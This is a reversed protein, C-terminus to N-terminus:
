SDGGCMLGTMTEKDYGFEVPYDPSSLLSKCISFKLAAHNDLENELIQRAKEIQGSHVLGEIFVFYESADAPHLDNEIASNYLSSIEQWQGKQRALSAKQYYYCWQHAPEEGFIAQSPMPQPNTTTIRSIDSFIAVENVYQKENISYIPMNGDLVHLCAEAFPQGILIMQSYDRPMYIDRVTGERMEQDVVYTVTELNLIQAQIPPISVPQSRYILNLPGWIEYDEHFSFTSPLYGMVLTNDQIDPARWSLQWWFNRQSEWYGNWAFGNLIQVIVSFGILVLFGTKRYMAKFASVIGLIILIAGASPHLAYAKYADNLNLYRNSLVVPAVAGLVIISGLLLKVWPKESKQLDENEDSKRRVKLYFIVLIVSLIGGAFAIAIHSYRSVSLIRYPQVFWAFVSASLFDKITQFILRFVMTLLDSRYAGVLGNLDTANRSSEFIFIRWFLFIGIGMALPLYSIILKRVLQFIKEPKQRWHLYALLSIRMVELGIMYEYIWVYFMLLLVSLFTFVIKPGRKEARFAMLSFAISALAGAYGILHNIKTAANPQALFGPFVVFLVAALIPLDKQQPWVLKLIWYFAYAGMIRFLLAFIHWGTSNAGIIKFFFSYIVGMFPRDLSFLPILSDAGRSVGSWITYWDDYYYGLKPIMLGYTLFAILSILFLFVLPSETLQNKHNQLWKVM